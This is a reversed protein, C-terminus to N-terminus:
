KTIFDTNKIGVKIKLIQANRQPLPNLSCLYTIYFPLTGSLQTFPVFLM